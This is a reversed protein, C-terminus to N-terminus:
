PFVENMIDNISKTENNIQMMAASYEELSIENRSQLVKTLAIRFENLRMYRMYADHVADNMAMFLKCTDTSSNSIDKYDLFKM